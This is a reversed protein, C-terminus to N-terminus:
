IGGRNRRQIGVVMAENLYVENDDLDRTNIIATTIFNHNLLNVLAEAGMWPTEVDVLVDGFKAVYVRYELGERM